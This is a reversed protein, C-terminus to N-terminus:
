CVISGPKDVAIFNREKDHLLVKVPTATVPPEHRHVVNRNFVLHASSSILACVYEIRDGDKVITDPKAIKGNITTV